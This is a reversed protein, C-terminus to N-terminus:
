WNHLNKTNTSDANKYEDLNHKRMYRGIIKLIKDDPSGIEVSNFIETATMKRTGILAKREITLPGYKEIIKAIIPHEIKPEFNARHRDLAAELEPNPWWPEGKLYLFQAQAWVQEINIGADDPMTIENVALPWYRRNGTEDLLFEARNM